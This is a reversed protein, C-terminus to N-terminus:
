KKFDELAKELKIYLAETDDDNFLCCNSMKMVASINQKHEDTSSMEAAEQEIFKELTVHDLPSGRGHIRQYRLGQEADVALLIANENEQLARAEGITRLSEIVVDGGMEMAKAFLQRFVYDSGHKERLSNAFSAMTDRDIPLGEAEMLEQFFSRASLHKFGKNDVLYQVVTGKGAGLTGTVGIIM